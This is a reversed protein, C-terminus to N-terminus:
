RGVSTARVHSKTHSRYVVGKVISALPKAIAALALTAVAAGAISTLLFKLFELM